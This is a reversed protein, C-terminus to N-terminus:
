EARVDAEVSKSRQERDAEFLGELEQAAQQASQILQQEDGAIAHTAVLNREDHKRFLEISEHATEPPIGLEELVMETLRLSSFFTERIIGTIGVDMLLHAHRRNRARAFIALNRFHRKAIEVVALTEDMDSLAVVLVRATEAGAARLVEERTPNGFYM